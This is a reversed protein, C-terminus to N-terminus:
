HAIIVNATFIADHAAADEFLGGVPFVATEVARRVAKVFAAPAVSAAVNPSYEITFHPM